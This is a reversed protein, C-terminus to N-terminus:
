NFQNEALESAYLKKNQENGTIWHEIELMDIERSQFNPWIIIANSIKMVHNNPFRRNKHVMAGSFFNISGYWLKQHNRKKKVTLSHFMSTIKQM